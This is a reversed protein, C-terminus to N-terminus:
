RSPSLSFFSHLRSPQMFLSAGQVPAPLRNQTHRLLQAPLM